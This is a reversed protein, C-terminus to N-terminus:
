ECNLVISSSKLTDESFCVFANSSTSFFKDHFVPLAAPSILSQNLFPEGVEGGVRGGVVTGGEDVVLASVVGVVRPPLVAAKDAMRTKEQRNM